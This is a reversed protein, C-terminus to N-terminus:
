TPRFTGIIVGDREEQKEFTIELHNPLEEEIFRKLYENAEEVSLNLNWRPLWSEIILGTKVERDRKIWSLLAKLLKTKFVEYNEGEEINQSSSFINELKELIKGLEGSELEEAPFLSHLVRRLYPFDESRIVSKLKNNVAFNQISIRVARKIKLDLPFIENERLISRYISNVRKEFTALIIPLGTHEKLWIILPYLDIDCTAIVVGDAPIKKITLDEIASLALALDASNRAKKKKKYPIFPTFPTAGVQHLQTPLSPSFRQAHPLNEYEAFVKFCLIYPHVSLPEKRM